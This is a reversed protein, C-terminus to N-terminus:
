VGSGPHTGLDNLVRELGKKRRLLDASSRAQAQGHHESDHTLGAPRDTDVAADAFPRGNLDVQRSRNLSCCGSRTPRRRRLWSSSDVNEHDIVVGIDAPDGRFKEAPDAM